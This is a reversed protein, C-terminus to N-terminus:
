WCRAGPPLPVSPPAATQTYRCVWRVARNDSSWRLARSKRRAPDPVATPVRPPTDDGGGQEETFAMGQGNERAYIAMVAGVPVRVGQARGGFRANFTIEENTMQLGQVASPGINLVIRGQHVYGEPVQAGPAAANVLIHPTLQNDDIWEYLARILYPRSSTM